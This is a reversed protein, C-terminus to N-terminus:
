RLRARYNFRDNPAADGNLTFDSWDGTQQINDAWKFDLTAPLKTGLLNWPVAVELENGATRYHITEAVGWQYKGDVNRELSTTGDGAVKRNIVFDYGLWGTKPNSDVDVFLLMWNPDTAPTLKERTRVYFYVNQQDYSLKAAVIDNRGTRNVYRVQKGWGPADRQVPDGITDHFEPRVNQWDDFNGDITIPQPAIPPIPRVGKYRRINAIMQYYYNDGHGGLMPEVDRSYEPNFEDVFTVPGPQYFPAHIDFRGAIWENWGTIFIFPPDITLARDWQETFNRGSTDQSEPGPEKGAHFSRGCSRPNSLVSLKGDVANQAVGVTLEEPVNPTQCFAHQPSVELWGWEGLGRPGTFYDPQPKRFTFFQRIAREKGEVFGIRLTRDGAVAVGDAYATGGPLLDKHHSWWAVKGKPESIELYYTGKPCVTALELTAWGNDVLKECRSALLRKGHPGKAYLSMMVDSDPRRWTALSGGVSLFPKDATFSQGLTHGPLLETSNDKKAQIAIDGLQSPDALILPKGRWRFWLEAYLGKGYLQDWLECVVKHPDGFPCLFAIQPVRNGDRRAQAFVRGLAQWSEPYTVQNTVDFVIVDIGVEGLMQAHKRLVGEDDSRYYSFISEGWHHPAYPPGWLPSEPHNIATPDHALITSIDFPGADGHRGLWLFYFVGVFKEPRPPGVQEATPLSRGLADSAVWTDSAVDWSTPSANGGADAAAAVTAASGVAILMVCAFAIARISAEGPKM